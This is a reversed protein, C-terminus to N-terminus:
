YCLNENHPIKGNIWMPPCTIPTNGISNWCEGKDNIGMPQDHHHDQGEEKHYIGLLVVYSLSSCM